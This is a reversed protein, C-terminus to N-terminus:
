DSWDIAQGCKGCYNDMDNPIADDWLIWGGEKCIPCYYNKHMHLPKKPIQKKLAEIAKNIAELDYQYCKSKEGYPYDYPDLIVRLVKIAEEPTIRKDEYEMSRNNQIKAPWGIRISLEKILQEKALTYKLKYNKAKM